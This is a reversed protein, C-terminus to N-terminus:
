NFHLEISEANNSGAGVLQQLFYLNQNNTTLLELYPFQSESM